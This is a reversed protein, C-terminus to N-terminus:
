ALEPEPQDEGQGSRDGAQGPDSGLADALTAHLPFVRDLGSLRFAHLVLGEAGVVQVSGDHYEGLRRKAGVLVGLGVSDIFSVRRLDVLLRRRGADITQNLCQRLEPASAMDIEGGVAVVTYGASATVHLDLLTPAM